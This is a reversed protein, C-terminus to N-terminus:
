WAGSRPISTRRSSPPTSHSTTRRSQRRNGPTSLPVAPMSVSPTGSGSTSPGGPGSSPRPTTWEHRPTVSGTDAPQRPSPGVGYCTTPTVSALTSPPRTSHATTTTKRRSRTAFADMAAHEAPRTESDTPGDTQTSPLQHRRHPKQHPGNSSNSPTAPRSDRTSSGTRCRERVTGAPRRTPADAAPRHIAANAKPHSCTPQTRRDPPFAPATRPPPRRTRPYHRTPTRAPHRNPPSPTERLPHLPLRPDRTTAQRTRIVPNHSLREIPDPTAAPNPAAPRRHNGNPHNANHTTLSERPAPPTQATWTSFTGGLQTFVRMLVHKPTNPHHTRLLNDTTTDEARPAPAAPRAATPPKPRRRAPATPPHLGHSPAHGRPRPTRRTSM